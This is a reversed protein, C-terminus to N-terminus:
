QNDSNCPKGIEGNLLLEKKWKEIEARVDPKAPKTEKQQCSFLSIILISFLIKTKL